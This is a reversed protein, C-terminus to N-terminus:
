SQASEQQTGANDPQTVPGDLLTAEVQQGANVFEQGVTIVEAREPLGSVWVGQRTDSVITVPYFAVVGNEVTRVGLVGQDDLTLVSQPLLHGPMDGAQVTAQATVGDRLAFDANPLEIEIPFSRTAENSTAAVYTVKGEATQGTVTTVAAELGTHAVAIYREPVTATFLMPDLQIITACTGGLALMNGQSVLPDQVVGAVKAVIETRAMEEQANDLAVQASSLSAQASRLAVAFQNQTNPAALGRERLQANTDFDLQAQEIGAQAQALGAEAQAVAAARTGQDLTCLAEGVDVRQGKTVHVTQVIGATEAVASVIAKAQTRGRLPVEIPMPRAEFVATRVSQLPANAGNVQATRQAVTLEAGEVDHHEALVGANALSEHLPGHDQGEIISVIPRVGNEPGNGGRVFTGTALWAGAGLLIVLALGYSFLARM